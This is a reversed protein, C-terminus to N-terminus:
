QASTIWWVNGFPDTVGGSRGYDQDALEMVVAAEHDLAKQFTEDADNVYIFLNATQPKWDENADSFMITSGGIRMECHGLLKEDRMSHHTIEADFVQKVFDIFKAADKLMLYPMVTQHTSPINM